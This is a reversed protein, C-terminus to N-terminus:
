PQVRAMFQRVGEVLLAVQAEDYAAYDGHAAKNRLGLWATINKQDLKSYVGATALEANLSDAKKPRTDNGKVVTTPIKAVVALQRLHEELSSGAVVAAADKYHESLLHDAMELFDAFIEASVLGRTTRLWGGELEGKAAGLIGLGVNIDRPYAHTVRDNFDSFYSHESGYVNALFSLSAARFAAFAQDAVRESGNRDQRTTALANQGLALVEDARRIFDDLQM